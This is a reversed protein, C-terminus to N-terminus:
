YTRVRATSLPKKGQAAPRLSTPACHACRRLRLSGCTPLSVLAPCPHLRGQTFPMPPFHTGLHASARLAFRGAPPSHFSHPARCHGARRNFSWDRRLRSPPITGQLSQVVRAWLASPPIARLTGAMQVGAVPVVWLSRGEPLSSDPAAQSLTPRRDDADPPVFRIGPEAEGEALGARGGRWVGDGEGVIGRWGGAGGSGGAFDPLLRKKQRGLCSFGDGIAFSYLPSCAVEGPWAM